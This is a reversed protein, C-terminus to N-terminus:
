FKLNVSSERSLNIGSRFLLNGKLVIYLPIYFFMYLFFTSNPLSIESRRKREEQWYQYTVFYVSDSLRLFAIASVSYTRLSFFFFIFSIFIFRDVKWDLPM